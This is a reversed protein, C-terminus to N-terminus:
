PSTKAGMQAMWATYKEAVMQTLRTAGRVNLHNFDGFDADNFVQDPPLNEMDWFPLDFEAAIQKAATLYSEYDSPRDFNAYYEDAIPMNVIAVAIHNNRALSLIKRLSEAQLGEASYNLVGARNAYKGRETVPVDALVDELDHYGRRDFYVHPPQPLSGTTLIQHLLFRYRFLMSNSLFFNLVQGRIGTRSEALALPSHKVRDTVDAAWPSNSNLDQPTLGLIIAGPHTYRLYIELFMFNGYPPLGEIAANFSGKGDHLTRQEDFLTPNFGAQTTSNGMFLLDIGKSAQFAKLYDLKAQILQSHWLSPEPAPLAAQVMPVRLLVEGVLLFLVLWVVWASVRVRSRLTDFSFISHRYTTTPVTDLQM